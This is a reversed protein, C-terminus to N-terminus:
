ANPAEKEECYPCPYESIMRGCAQCRSPHTVEQGKPLKVDTVRVSGPVLRNNEDLDFSVNVERGDGIRDGPHLRGALHEPPDESWHLESGWPTDVHRADDPVDIGLAEAICALDARNAGIPLSIKRAIKLGDDTM